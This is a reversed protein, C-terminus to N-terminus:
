GGNWYTVGSVTGKGNGTIVFLMLLSMRESVFINIFLMLAVAILCAAVSMAAYEDTFSITFERLFPLGSKEDILKLCNNRIASVGSNFVSFFVTGSIIIGVLVLLYTVIKAKKSIIDQLLMQLLKKMPM